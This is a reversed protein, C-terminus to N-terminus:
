GFSAPAWPSPRNRAVIVAAVSVRVRQRVPIACDGAFEAAFQLTM